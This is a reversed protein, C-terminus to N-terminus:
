RVLVKRGNVINLGPQVHSRRRGMLDYVVADAETERRVAEVATPTEGLFYVTGAASTAPRDLVIYAHLSPLSPTAAGAKYLCRDQVVYSSHAVDGGAERVDLAADYNGSIHGNAFSSSLAGGRVLTVGELRYTGDASVEAPTVLFPVNATTSYIKRTSLEKGDFGSVQEVLVGTGFMGRLQQSSLGFPLVVANRQDAKLSLHLEVNTKGDLSSDYDTTEDIVVADVAVDELMVSRFYDIEEQPIKLTNLFYNEFKAGLTAGELANIVEIRDQWGSKERLGALSYSTLEYDKFIADFSFGLIGELLMAFLGTRDAGWVCHFYLAKGERLSKLLLKWEDRWHAISEEKNLDEALWDNGAAFYYTDTFGFASIGVGDNDWSSNWRLDIEAGVGLDRLVQLDNGTAIHAGNLESGRFIHGYAVRKTNGDVLWGGLDRINNASPAYIMRLRGDTTFRGQGVTTGDAVVRYYYTRQPYLNPIYANAGPVVGRREASAFSKDTSWEVYVNTADAIGVPVMVPNPIDRRQPPATSYYNKMQSDGTLLYLNESLFRRASLNELTATFNMHMPDTVCYTLSTALTLSGKSQPMFKWSYNSERRTEKIYFTQLWGGGWPLVHTDPVVPSLTVIGFDISEVADSTKVVCPTGAAVRDVPYLTATKENIGGVRYIEAFHETTIDFPLCLPTLTGASFKKQLTVHALTPVEVGFETDSDSLTLDPVDDGYYLLLNGFATWNNAKTTAGISIGFPLDGDATLTFDVQNWYDGYGFSTPVAARSMPVGSGDILSQIGSTRTSVFRRGNMVSQLPTTADALYLSAKNDEIGNEYNRIADPWAEPRYFGQVLLTYHGAPMDKLVQGITARSRTGEVSGIGSEGCRLTANQVTWGRTGDTLDANPILASLEYRGNRAPNTKVFDIVASRVRQVVAEAEADTHAATLDAQAQLYVPTFADSNEAQRAVSALRSLEHFWTQEVPQETGYYLVRAQTWSLWNFTAGQTEFGVTLRGDAGVQAMVCYEGTFGKGSLGGAVIESGEEIPTTATNALINLGSATGDFDGNEDYVRVKSRFEYWGPQLNTYAYTIRANGLQYAPGTWFQFRSVEFITEDMNNTVLPFDGHTHATTETFQWGDAYYGDHYDVLQPHLGTAADDLGMEHKYADTQGLYYLRFNDCKFWSATRMGLKVNLTQPSVFFPLEHETFTSKHQPVFQLSYTNAFLEVPTNVNLYTDSAALAVLRYEGAPLGTVTQEVFQNPAVFTYDNASYWSNFLWQGDCGATKYVENANERAGVETGGVTSIIWGDTTGTEFSPNQLRDTMDQRAPETQAWAVPTGAMLMAAVLSLVKKPNLM